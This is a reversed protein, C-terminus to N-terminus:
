LTYGVIGLSHDVVSVFYQHGGLSVNKTPGWVDVHALELLGHLHHTDTDFKVKKKNVVSINRAEM